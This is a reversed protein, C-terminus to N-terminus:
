LLKHRTLVLHWLGGGIVLIMMAVLSNVFIVFYRYNRKGICNGVWPCHHDLKEVCCGCADCHVSRLPRVIMCSSCIKIHTFRSGYTILWSSFFEPSSPSDLVNRYKLHLYTRSPITGPDTFAAMICFIDSIALFIFHLFAMWWTNDFDRSM